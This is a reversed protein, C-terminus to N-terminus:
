KVTPHNQAWELSSWNHFQLELRKVPLFRLVTGHNRFELFPWALDGFLTSYDIELQQHHQVGSSM